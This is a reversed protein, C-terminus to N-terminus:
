DEQRGIRGGPLWDAGLPTVGLARKVLRRVYNNGHSHISKRHTFGLNAAMIAEVVAASRSVGADCHVILNADSKWAARAFNAIREAMDQDFFRHGSNALMAISEREMSDLDYDGFELRLIAFPPAKLTAPKGPQTISIFATLPGYEPTYEEASERDLHMIWPM